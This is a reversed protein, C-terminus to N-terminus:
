TKNGLIKREAKERLRAVEHRPKKLDKAITGESQRDFHLMLLVKLEDLSLDASEPSPSGPKTADELIASEMM